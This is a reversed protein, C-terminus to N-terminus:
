PVTPTPPPPCRPDLEQSLLILEDAIPLAICGHNDGCIFDFERAAAHCNFCNGNFRNVVDDRGRRRISSGQASVDLELYEWNNNAPDFEPGRKVMAEGPFIQLITGVPYQKGREQNRALAVAEDLHGLRNTIRFTGVQEWNRLCEFDSAQAEFDEAIETETEGCGAVAFCALLALVTRLRSRIQM